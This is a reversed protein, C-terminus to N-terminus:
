KIKNDHESHKNQIIERLDIVLRHLSSMSLLFINGKSSAALCPCPKTFLSIAFTLATRYGPVLYWPNHALNWGGGHEKILTRQACVVCEYHSQRKEKLFM